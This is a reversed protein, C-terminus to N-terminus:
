TNHCIRFLHDQDRFLIYCIAPFSCFKIAPCFICPLFRRAADKLGSAAPQEAVSRVQEAQFAHRRDKALGYV